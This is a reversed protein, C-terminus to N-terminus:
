GNPAPRSARGNACHLHAGCAPFSSKWPCPVGLSGCSASESRRSEDDRVAALMRGMNRPGITKMVRRLRTPPADSKFPAPDLDDSPRAGKRRDSELLFRELSEGFQYSNALHRWSKAMQENDICTAEDPAEGARREAEAARALCQPWAALAFRDKLWRRGPGQCFVLGGCSRQSLDFCASRLFYSSPNNSAGAM